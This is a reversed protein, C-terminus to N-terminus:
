AILGAQRMAKRIQETETTNCPPQPARPVGTEYGLFNLAAKLGAAGRSLIAHHAIYAFFPRDKNREFFECAARTL